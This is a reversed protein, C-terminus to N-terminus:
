RAGSSIWWPFTCSFPADPKVPQVAPRRRVLSGARRLFIYLAFRGSSTAFSVASFSANALSPANSISSTARSESSSPSPSSSPSLSESSSESSPPSAAIAPFFGSLRCTRFFVFAANSASPSRECRTKLGRFVLFPPFFSLPPAAAAAASESLDFFRPRYLPDSQM